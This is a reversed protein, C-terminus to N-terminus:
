LKWLICDNYKKRLDQFNSKAELENDFEGVYIAIYKGKKAIFVPYGSQKLSKAEERATNEKHFSAVQIKYKQQDKAIEIEATEEAPQPDQAKTESEPPLQQDALDLQRLSEQPIPESSRAVMRKGREVGLSFSVILLIVVTVGAIALIDLPLRIKQKEPLKKGGSLGGFLYLQKSEM